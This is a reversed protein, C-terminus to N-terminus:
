VASAAIPGKLNDLLLVMPTLYSTKKSFQAEAKALTDLGPISNNSETLEAEVADM